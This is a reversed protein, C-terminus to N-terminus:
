GWYGPIGVILQKDDDIALVEGKVIDGIKVDHVSNLADAMANKNENTNNNESM